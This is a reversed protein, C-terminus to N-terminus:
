DLNPLTFDTYRQEEAMLGAEVVGSQGVGVTAIAELEWLRTLAVAIEATVRTNHDVSEKLTNMDGIMNVLENVRSLSQQAEQHSNQAATAVVAGASAQTAVNQAGANGSRAMEALTDENFGAQELVRQMQSQMQSANGGILGSFDGNQLSQVLNIMDGIKPDLLDNFDGDMVLGAVDTIGTLAEYTEQLQQIQAQLLDIQELLQDLQETQIGFDELMQQIQRIQQAINQTDIVPVGQAFAPTTGPMAATLTTCATLAVALAAARVPKAFHM